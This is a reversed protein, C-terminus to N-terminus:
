TAAAAIEGAPNNRHILPHEEAEAGASKKNNLHGQLRLVNQVDDPSAMYM